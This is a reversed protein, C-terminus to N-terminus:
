LLYELTIYRNDLNVKLGIKAPEVSIGTNKSIYKAELDPETIKMGMHYMVLLKPKKTMSNLVEIIDNSCMHGPVKQNKVRIVNAILIDVSEFDSSLSNIYESDSTYGITGFDTELKFGITEPDNHKTSTATIKWNQVKSFDGSKLVIKEFVRSQHYASIGKEFRKNGNLVSNNGILLGQKKTMGKTMAEIISEADTYHDPHCHSVFLIDTKWPNINLQNMRVLTGPGPDVHAILKGDSIRFGGTGKNQTISEWRGGGGGLFTIEFGLNM